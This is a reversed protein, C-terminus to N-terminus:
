QGSLDTKASAAEDELLLPPKLGLSDIGARVITETMYANVEVKAKEVRAEMHEGFSKMVFPLNAGLERRARELPELLAAAKGKPIGSQHVAAIVEDIAKVSVALTEDAEVKYEQGTDRLPFEPQYKGEISVVTCPVGGGINFSSVFTAWQAESMDISVIEKQAMHWDRSLSRHLASRHIGVRVFNQHKFDSGYLVRTGQIRSVTIQGFAPHDYVTEGKFSTSERRTPEQADKSTDKFGHAM